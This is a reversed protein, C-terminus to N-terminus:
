TGSIGAGFMSAESEPKDQAKNSFGGWSVMLGHDAGFKSIAGELNDLDSTGIQGKVKVQIAIRPSDLGLSGRGAIADVGSDAGAEPGAKVWFGQAQLIGTVVRVMKQGQFHNYLYNAIRDRGEVELDRPAADPLAVANPGQAPAADALVLGPDTQGEFVQTLRSEASNRQIECVTMFAGLSYLLDQKVTSRPVNEPRWAIKRTHHALEGLDARYEYPGAVRGMAIAPQLKLPLVVLDGEKMELFRWLQGAWNSVTSASSSPYREAILARLGDWDGAFGALDPVGEWGIVALGNALAM